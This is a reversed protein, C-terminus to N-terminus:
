ALFRVVSVAVGDGVLGYGENYDAPLKYGDDLGM